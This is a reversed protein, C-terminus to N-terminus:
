IILSKFINSVKEGFTKPYMHNKEFIRAMDRSARGDQMRQLFRYKHEARTSEADDIWAQRQAYRFDFTENM